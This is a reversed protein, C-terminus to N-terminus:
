SNNADINASPPLFGFDFIGTFAQERSEISLKYVRTEKTRPPVCHLICKLPGNIALYELDVYANVTSPAERRGSEDEFM